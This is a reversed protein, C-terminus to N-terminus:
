PITGARTASCPQDDKRRLTFIKHEGQTQYARAEDGWLYLTKELSLIEAVGEIQYCKLWYRPMWDLILSHSSPRALWSAQLDAIILIEPRAREIEDMMENQMILAYPQPEMLPYTYIYGTASKRDAYFYIEPESGLIAIRDDPATNEKLYRGIEVAEVFPNARYRLRSVREPTIATLYAQEKVAYAAVLGAFILLVLFQALLAPLSKGLERHLTAAAIGICIGAAPLMLIFYHPRFYFGPVIALFSFLVFATVIIRTNKPWPRAWLLIMGLAGFLWLWGNSQTVTTWGHTFLTWVFSLPMETVYASAYKFTWFWFRDLVGQLYLVGIVLFFPVASGAVLIAGRSIIGRYGRGGVWEHWWVLVAAMALFLIGHQKMMVAIGFMMGALFIKRQRTSELGALLLIMGALAPLLVFHTAHAFIGMIWRDLALVAFGATGIAASFPELFRRLLIFLLVATGINLVLLGIHVGWITEGFAAIILAYAYYTGPFKMNYALEYPPIGQLILQAAYAYEGEDRELPVDALRFRVWAVGVFVIGLLVFPLYKELTSLIAAPLTTRQKRM